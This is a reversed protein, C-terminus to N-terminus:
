NELTLIEGIRAAEIEEECFPLAIWEKASYVFTQNGYYPSDPDTSQSHTLVGEAVPCGSEDWTVYFVFM